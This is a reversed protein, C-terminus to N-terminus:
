RLARVETYTVRRGGSEGNGEGRNSGEDTGERGSERGVGDGEIEECEDAGQGGNRIDDHDIDVAVITTTGVLGENRDSPAATAAAEAVPPLSSEAGEGAEDLMAADWGGNGKGWTLQTVLVGSLGPITFSDEESGQSTLAERPDGSSGSNDFDGSRQPAECGTRKEEEGVGWEEEEIASAGVGTAAAAAAAAGRKRSTDADKPRIRAGDEPPSAPGVSVSERRLYSALASTQNESSLRKGGDSQQGPPHHQQQKRPTHKNGGGGGSGGGGGGGGYHVKRAAM